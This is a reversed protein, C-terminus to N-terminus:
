RFVAYINRKNPKGAASDLKAEEAAVIAAYKDRLMLLDAVPIRRLNTGDVTSDLITSSARGEIVANINDLTRRAQSRADFGEAAATLNPLVTLRGAWVQRATTGDSVVGAGMYDGALWLATESFSVSALHDSGSATTTFDIASGNPARFSFTINFGDSAPYDGCPLSFLLSEGARVIGPVTTSIPASM